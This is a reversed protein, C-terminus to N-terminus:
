KFKMGTLAELAEKQAPTVEIDGDFDVEVAKDQAATGSYIEQRIGELLAYLNDGPCDTAGLDRHGYFYKSPIKYTNKIYKGLKVLSNRTAKTFVNNTPPHYCGMISIGVNNTNKNAVHAGVVGVPRGEYINGLPDILFHYAIDVWGRGEQHYNQIFKMEKVAAEKTEPYHAETHHLTFKQPTHTIFDGNPAAAGWEARYIINLGSSKPVSWAPDVTGRVSAKGKEQRDAYVFAEIGYLTVSEGSKKPNMKFQLAETKVAPLEYKAWFRGEDTRHVKVPAYLSQGGNKTEEPLVLFLSTDPDPMDGQVLVTDYGEPVSRSLSTQPLACSDGCAEAKLVLPYDFKLINGSDAFAPVAQSIIGALIMYIIKKMM